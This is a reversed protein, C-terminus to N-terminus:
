VIPLQIICVTGEGEKTEVKIEGGHAKVIDYSLSLGLGTGQGTPKTTFFPQFIKDLVNQPIGNGNDRVSIEVMDDMKKTAVIVTPEYTQGDRRPRELQQKAKENVAYFANTILNLVVRGIDQPVVDIMKVGSDFDTNMTAHFAKNKARLGHYALRLYEDCLANIDTTVKGGGSGRSHQLMGKVIADARKGHHNIKQENNIINDAISKAERTNGKDLADKMEDLLEKNVESFNNMFNLPNQIEHAIGATLEGLSAMKESQILKKQTSKLNTLATELEKTRGSLLVNSRKRLFSNRWLLLSICVVVILGGTLAYTRMEVRYATRAAEIERQRQKEDFDINQFEQVRKSNFQSKNIDIIRSLYKVTSDNNGGTKYYDALATYTRLLLDPSKLYSAVPLGSKIYYLSSDRNGAQKYVEALLLNCAVVGRYYKFEISEALGRHFFKVAQDHNGLAQHVRGMNLSISGRYRHYGAKQAYDYSKQLCFLASDKQDLALYASGLTSYVICLLKLNDAERALGAAAKYYTQAKEQNGSNVYLIGLYLFTKCLLSLRKSHASMEQPTYEDFSQYRSPLVNNEAGPNEVLAVANLLTQLSRPYNGLNIFAYGMESVAFAEELKLNMKSSAAQLKEAYRLASDPNLERFANTIRGLVLLSTTDDSPSALESKLSDIYPSQALGPAPLSLLLIILLPRNRV